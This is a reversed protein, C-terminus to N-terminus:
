TRDDAPPAAPPTAHAARRNRFRMIGYIVERSVRAGVWLAAVVTAIWGGLVLDSPQVVLWIWLALLTAILAGVGYGLLTAQRRSENRCRECWLLRDLERTERVELCRVCTVEEPFRDRWSM